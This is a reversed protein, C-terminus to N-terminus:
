DEKFSWVYDVFREWNMHLQGYVDIKMSDGDGVWPNVLLVEHSKSWFYFMAVKDLREAFEEKNDYKKYMEDLEKRFTGHEFINWKIIKRSNSDHWYVYWEM